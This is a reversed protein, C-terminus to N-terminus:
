AARWGGTSSYRSWRLAEASARPAPSALVGSASVLYQGPIRAANQVNVGGDFLLEFSYQSRLRDFAAAAALSPEHLTQGSVGLRAIGMVMVSDVLPLYPTLQECSVGPRWVIGVRKGRRRCDAILEQLDDQSEGPLLYWDVQGWTQEVWKRPRLSMVHLCIPSRPWLQKVELIRTLDVPAAEPNVTDDVLDVHIHDVHAGLKGAIGAVDEAPTAYVAIGLQRGRVPCRMGAVAHALWAAAPILLFRWGSYVAITGGSSEAMVAAIGCSAASVTTLWVLLERKVHRPSHWELLGVLAVGTPLAALLALGHWWVPRPAQRWLLLFILEVVAVALLPFLVYSPVRLGPSWRLTAGGVITQVRPIVLDNGAIIPFVHTTGALTSAVVCPAIVGPPQSRAVQVGCMGDGTEGTRFSNHLADKTSNNVHKM